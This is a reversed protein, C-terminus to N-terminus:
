VTQGDGELIREPSEHSSNDSASWVVERPSAAFAAGEFMAVAAPAAVPQPCRDLSLESLTPLSLAVRTYCLAPPPHTSRAHLRQIVVLVRLYWTSTCNTSSTVCRCARQEMCRLAGRPRSAHSPVGRWAPRMHASHRMSVVYDHRAPASMEWERYPKLVINTSHFESM